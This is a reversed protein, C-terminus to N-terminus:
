RPRINFLVFLRNSLNSFDLFIKRKLVEDQLDASGADCSRLAEQFESPLFGTRFDDSPASKRAGLIAQVQKVPIYREEDVRIKGPASPKRQPTDLFILKYFCPVKYSLSHFWPGLGFLPSYIRHLLEDNLWVLTAMQARDFNFRRSAIRTQASNWAITEKKAQCIFLKEGVIEVAVDAGTLKSERETGHIFSKRITHTETRSEFDRKSHELQDSKEDSLERIEKKFEAEIIEAETPIVRKLLEPINELNELDELVARPFM